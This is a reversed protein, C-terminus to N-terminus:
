VGLKVVGVDTHVLCAVMAEVPDAPCLRGHKSSMVRLNFGEPVDQDAEKASHLEDLSAQFAVATAQFTEEWLWEVTCADWATSSVDAVM